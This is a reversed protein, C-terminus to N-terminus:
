SLIIDFSKRRRFSCYELIEGHAVFVSNCSIKHSTNMMKPDGQDRCCYKPNRAQRWLEVVRYKPHEMKRPRLDQRERKERWRQLTHTFSYTRSLSRIVLSHSPHHIRNSSRQGKGWARHGETVRVSHFLTAESLRPIIIIFFAIHGQCCREIRGYDSSTKNM